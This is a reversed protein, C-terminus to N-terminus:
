EDREAKLVALQQKAQLYQEQPQSSNGLLGDQDAARGALDGAQVPDNQAKEIIQDIDLSDFLQHQTKLDAVQRNLKAFSSGASNGEQELYGANNQKQWNLLGEEEQNVDREMPAGEELIVSQTNEAKG